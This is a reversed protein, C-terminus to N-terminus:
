SDSRRSDGLHLTGKSIFYTQYLSVIKSQLRLKIPSRETRQMPPFISLDAEEQVSCTLAATKREVLPVWLCHIVHAASSLTVPHLHVSEISRSQDAIVVACVGSSKPNGEEKWKNRDTDTCLEAREVSM